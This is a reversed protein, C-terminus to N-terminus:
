ISRNSEYQRVGSPRPRLRMKQPLRCVGPAASAVVTSKHFSDKPDHPRSARPTMKRRGEAIPVSSKLHKRSQTLAPTKVLSKSAQKSVESMSYTMTSAMM